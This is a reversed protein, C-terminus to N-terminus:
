PQNEPEREGEAQRLRVGPTAKPPEIRGLDAPTKADVGVGGLAPDFTVAKKDYDARRLRERYLVLFLEDQVKVWTEDPKEFHWVEPRWIVEGPRSGFFPTTRLKTVLVVAHASNGRVALVEVEDEFQNLAKTTAKLAELDQSTLPDAENGDEDTAPVKLDVGELRAADFDLVCDFKTKTPLGEITFRGTRADVNGPYKKDTARDIAFVATARAAVGTIAGSEAAFAFAPAALLVWLLFPRKLAM